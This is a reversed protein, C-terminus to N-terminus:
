TNPKLDRRVGEMAMSVNRNNMCEDWVEVTKAETYRYTPEMFEDRKDAAYSFWDDSETWQSSSSSLPSVSGDGSDAEDVSKAVYFEREFNRDGQSNAEKIRLLVDRGLFCDEVTCQEDLETQLTYLSNGSPRDSWIMKFFAIQGSAVHYDRIRRMGEEEEHKDEYGLFAIAMEKRYLRM